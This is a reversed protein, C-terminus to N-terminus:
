ESAACSVVTCCHDGLLNSTLREVLEVHDLFLLVSDEQLVHEPITCHLKVTGLTYTPRRAPLVPLVSESSPCHRSPMVPATLLRQRQVLPV